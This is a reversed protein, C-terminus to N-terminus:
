GYLIYKVIGLFLKLRIIYIKSNRKAIIPELDLHNM